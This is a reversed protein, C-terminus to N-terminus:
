KPGNDVITDHFKRRGAEPVRFIKRSTLSQHMFKEPQVLALIERVTFQGCASLPWYRGIV